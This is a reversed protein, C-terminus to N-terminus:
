RGAELKMECREEANEYVSCDHNGFEGALCRKLERENVEVCRRFKHEDYWSTVFAFAVFLLVAIGGWFTGTWFASSYLEERVRYKAERMAKPDGRDGWEVFEKEREDLKQHKQENIWMYKFSPM